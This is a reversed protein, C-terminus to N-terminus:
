MVGAGGGAGSPPAVRPAGATRRRKAVAPPRAVVPPSTAVAVSGSSAGGGVVSSSPTCRDAQLKFLRQEFNFFDLHKFFPFLKLTTAVGDFLSASSLVWNNQIEWASTVRLTGPM